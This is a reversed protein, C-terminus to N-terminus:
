LPNKGIFNFRLEQGKTEPLWNNQLGYVITKRVTEPTISNQQKLKMGDTTPIYKHNYDFSAVLRQGQNENSEIILDIYGDNGSVIYRYELGNVNIIRSGKKPLSM